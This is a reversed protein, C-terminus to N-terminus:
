SRIKLWVGELRLLWAKTQVGQPAGYGHLGGDRGIVRHCPIVLPLPNAANARGVARAAKPMGLRTALDGYTTVQGYPITSVLRLVQQQFPTLASWDIPLDFARLDGALYAAIQRSAEATAARDVNWQVQGRRRIFALFRAQDDGIHVAALGHDSIGLWLPGIPTPDLRNIAFHISPM